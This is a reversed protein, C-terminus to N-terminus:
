LLPEALFVDWKGKNGISRYAMLAKDSTDFIGFITPGSGSMLTGEAGYKILTRKITKLEPFKQLTVQELDNHLLTKLDFFTQVSICSIFNIESKTLKLNKYVWATSVEFGPYILVVWFPPLSNLPILEDGIGTAKAPSRFVFFPVDAGIERAISVLSEQPLPNDYYQNLGMLVSAANSSGGGLGAAVPIIKDIAIRVGDSIGCAKMFRDAAKYALNSADEPVRPDSCEITITPVDFLFTITDFLGVRCMVSVIDHYGDGRRNLVKLFLNIKAPSKIALM